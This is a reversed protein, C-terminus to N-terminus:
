RKNFICEWKYWLEKRLIEELEKQSNPKYWSKNLSKIFSFFWKIDNEFKYEIFELIELRSELSQYKNDPIDFVLIQIYNILKYVADSYEKNYADSIEESLTQAHNINWM